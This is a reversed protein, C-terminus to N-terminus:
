YNTKTVNELRETLREKNKQKKIIKKSNEKEREETIVNQKIGCKLKKILKDKDCKGTTKDVKM